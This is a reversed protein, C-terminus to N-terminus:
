TVSHLTLARPRETHERRGAALVAPTSRGSSTQEAPPSRPPETRTAARHGRPQERETTGDPMLPEPLRSPASPSEAAATLSDQGAPTMAGRLGGPGAALLAPPAGREGRASYTVSEFRGVPGRVRDRVAHSGLAERGPM